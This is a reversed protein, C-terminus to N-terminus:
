HLRGGFIAPAETGAWASKTCYQVRWEPAEAPTLKCSTGTEDLRQRRDPLLDNRM